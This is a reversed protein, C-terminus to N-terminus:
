ESRHSLESVDMEDLLQNLKLEDIGPRFASSFTEVQVPKRSRPEQAMLGRRVVENVAEKFSIRRRHALERVRAALDDELTLTTRM